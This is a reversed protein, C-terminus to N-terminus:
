LEDDKVEKELRAITKLLDRIKAKLEMVDVDDMHSQTYRKEELDIAFKPEEKKYRHEEECVPCVRDDYTALYELCSKCHRSTTHQVGCRVCPEEIITHGIHRVPSGYHRPTKSPGCGTMLVILLACLVIIVMACTFLKPRQERLRENQLQEPESTM